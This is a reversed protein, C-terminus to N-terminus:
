RDILQAIKDIWIVFLNGNKTAILHPSFSPTTQNSISITNGILHDKVLIERFQIQNGVWTVYVSNNGTTAVQPFSSNSMKNEGKNLNIAREFNKGRDNSTRLTIDTYETISNKDVWVVYVDGKETASVEPSM